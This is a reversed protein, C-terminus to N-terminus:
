SWSFGYKRGLYAFMQAVQAQTDAVNTIIVEAINGTLCDVGGNSSGIFLGGNLANTSPNGSAVTAASSDIYQVSSAGNIVSAVAHPGATSVSSTVSAGAYFYWDNNFGIIQRAGAADIANSPNASTDAVLYITNPQSVAFSAVKLQQSSASTFTATPLHNYSASSATYAPATPNPTAATWNGSSDPWTAVLGASQTLTSGQLWLVLNAGRAAPNFRVGGTACVGPGLGIGVGM